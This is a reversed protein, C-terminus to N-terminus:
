CGETPAAWCPRHERDETIHDPRGSRPPIQRLPLGTYGLRMAPVLAAPATGESRESENRPVVDKVVFGARLKGFPSVFPVFFLLANKGCIVASKCLYSLFVPFPLLM